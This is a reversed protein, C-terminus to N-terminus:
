SKTVGNAWLEELRRASPGGGDGRLATVDPKAGSSSLRTQPYRHTSQWTPYDTSSRGPGYANELDPVDEAM